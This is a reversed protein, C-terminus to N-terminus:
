AGLSEAVLHRQQNAKALAEDRDKPLSLFEQYDGGIETAIRSQMEPLDRRVSEAFVMGTLEKNGTSLAGEMMDALDEEFSLAIRSLMDASAGALPEMIKQQLKERRTM